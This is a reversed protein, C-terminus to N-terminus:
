NGTEKRNPEGTGEFVNAVGKKNV